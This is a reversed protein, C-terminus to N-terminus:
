APAALQRPRVGVIWLSVGLVLIAEVVTLLLQSLRQGTSWGQWQASDVTVQLFLTMSASALLVRLLLVALGWSPRWLGRRWLAAILLGAQLYAALATALAPGAHALPAILLANLGIACAIAMVGYRAPTATDHQASFASSLVKILCFGWLGLSFAVLSKSAMAVDNAGFAQHQFLTSLLPEALCCLGLTAPLAILCTLRIGWDLTAAFLAPQQQAQQRSLSPLMVTALSVGFLGLPFEVLRDSYYLWSVSGAPLFSAFVTGILLNIQLVAGGLLAPMLRNSGVDWRSWRWRPLLGLRWLAPLQFLCQLVGALLVGWALATTPQALHPALAMAAVIM